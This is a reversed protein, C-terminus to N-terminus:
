RANWWWWWDPHERRWEPELQRYTGLSYGFRICAARDGQNCAVHNRQVRATLDDQAYGSLTIGCALAAAVVGIQLVRSNM